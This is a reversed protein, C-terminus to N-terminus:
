TLASELMERIFNIPIVKVKCVLCIHFSLKSLIEVAVENIIHQHCSIM